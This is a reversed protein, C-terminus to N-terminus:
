NSIKPMRYKRDSNRPTKLRTCMDSGKIIRFMGNQLRRVSFGAGAIAISIRDPSYQADVPFAFRFGPSYNVRALTRRM